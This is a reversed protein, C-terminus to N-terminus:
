KLLKDVIAEVQRCASDIGEGTDIIFDARKRKEADPLQRSLILDLKDATMGPRALARSRQVSSPAGVVVIANFEKERGTEFLLPIDILALKTGKVREAALFAEQAQRVLPHVAAEIQALLSPDRAVAQSLRERDVAEGIVAGPYIRRVGAVGQGGRAYLEHVAGDSDFVAVGKDAFMRATATKGMAISGTLGIVKM